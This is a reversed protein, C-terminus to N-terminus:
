RYSGQVIRATDRIVALNPLIEQIKKSFKSIQEYTQTCTTVKTFTESM